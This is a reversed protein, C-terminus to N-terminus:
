VQVAAGFWYRCRAFGPMAELGIAIALHGHVAGRAVTIILGSLCKSVDPEMAEIVM